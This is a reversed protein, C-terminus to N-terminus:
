DEDDDDDDDDERDDSDELEEDEDDDEDELESEDSEGLTKTLNKYYEIKNMSNKIFSNQELKEELTRKVAEFFSAYSGNEANEIDTKTLM